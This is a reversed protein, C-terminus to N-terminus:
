FNTNVRKCYATPTTKDDMTRHKGGNLNIWSPAIYLSKIGGHNNSSTNSTDVRSFFLFHARTFRVTHIILLENQYVLLIIFLNIIKDTYDKKKREQEAPRTKRSGCLFFHKYAFNSKSMKIFLM